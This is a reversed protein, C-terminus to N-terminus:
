NRSFGRSIENSKNVEFSEKSIGVDITFGIYHKM